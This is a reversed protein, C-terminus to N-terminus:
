TGTGYSGREGGNALEVLMDEGAGWSGAGSQSWCLALPGKGAGGALISPLTRSGADDGATPTEAVRVPQEHRFSLIALNAWFNIVM